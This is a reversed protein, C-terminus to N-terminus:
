PTRWATVCRVSKEDLFTIVVTIRPTTVEHRWEGNERYAPGVTGARLVNLVDGAILNREKM